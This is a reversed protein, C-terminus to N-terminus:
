LLSNLVASLLDVDSFQMKASLSIRLRETHPPVTPTRIPLVKVGRELLDRSIQVVRIADGIIVPLIHTPTAVSNGVDEKLSDYLRQSLLKLHERAGNM